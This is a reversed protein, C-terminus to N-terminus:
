RTGLASSNDVCIGRLFHLVSFGTTWDLAELLSPHCSMHRVHVYMLGICYWVCEGGHLKIHNLIQKKPACLRPKCDIYVVCQVLVKSMIHIIIIEHLNPDQHCLLRLKSHTTGFHIGKFRKVHTAPAHSIALVHACSSRCIDMHSKHSWGELIM